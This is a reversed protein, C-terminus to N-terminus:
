QKNSDEQFNGKEHHRFHKHTGKFPNARMEPHHPQPMQMQHIVVPQPACPMPPKHVFSFLSLALYVGVFTGLAVILFKRLCECKIICGHEKEEVCKNEDAM